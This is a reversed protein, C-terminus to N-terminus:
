RPTFHITVDVSKDASNVSDHISIGWHVGPPLLNTSDEVFKDPYDANYPEGERLTWAERLRATSQSDLGQLELEGMKYQDGEVVSLGYHVTSKEEDLVPAPKVRVAMYGRSRYLKAISELDRELRVADAPQGPFLHILPQLQNIPVASDGSWVVDTVSFVKGPTVPFLADVQVEADTQPVVRAEPIAFSAKLYGRQLYVPLFDVEAVKVLPSRFYEAGTLKRAAAILLPVHDPAAGPFEVDHILIAMGEVHYAIATLQGGEPPSERLYNVRGLVQKEDLIAQLAESVQDPLGGTAPLFPRFLPVRRQLESTLQADTFWVFNEFHAPLLKAEDTDQLQLELKTGAASYSYSYAVDTFMGTGGLRRAAEKFDADGVNEGLQLGAAPVIEKDTFRETGTIKVSILKRESAIGVKNGAPKQASAGAILLMPSLLLFGLTKKMKM